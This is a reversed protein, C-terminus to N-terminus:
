KPTSADDCTTKVWSLLRDFSCDNIERELKVMFYNIDEFPLVEISKRAPSNLNQEPQDEHRLRRAGLGNGNVGPYRM